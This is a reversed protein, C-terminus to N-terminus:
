KEEAQKKIRANVVKSGETITVEATSVVMGRIDYTLAAAGDRYVTVVNKKVLYTGSFAGVYGTGVYTGDEGFTATFAYDPKDEPDVWSGDVAVDSAAWTGIINEEVVMNTEGEDDSCSPLAVLMTAM